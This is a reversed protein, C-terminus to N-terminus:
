RRRRRKRRISRPDYCVFIYTGVFVAVAISMYGLAIIWLGEM